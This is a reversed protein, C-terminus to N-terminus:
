YWVIENQDDLRSREIETNLYQVMSKAWVVVKSSSHNLLKSILEKQKELYPVQSGVSGYSGINAALENMFGDLEGFEDIMKLALHHWKTADGFVTVPMMYALRKAAKPSNDRAWGILKDVNAHDLVGVEGYEGNKSGLLYKLSIYIEDDLLATGIVSLFLDFDTLIVHNIIDKLYHDLSYIGYDKAVEVIQRLLVEILETEQNEKFLRDIVSKWSYHFNHSPRAKLFNNNLILTMLFPKLILWSEERRRVYQAGIDFSVAEANPYSSLTSLVDLVENFELGDFGRGNLLQYFQSPEIAGRDLLQFLKNIESIDPVQVSTIYVSYRSLENDQIISDTIAKRKSQELSSVYGALVVANQDDLPLEKIVKLMEYALEADNLLEGLRYGFVFGKRQEGSLLYPLISLIDEKENVIKEAFQKANDGVRDIYRGDLKYDFDLDWPPVSVYYSVKNRLSKPELLIQIREVLDAEENNIVEYKLASSLQNIAEEWYSDDFIVIKEIANKLLYALNERILSRTATAIAGKIVEREEENVNAVYVLRELLNAWYEAIQPWSPDFDKLPVSSGQKEPGIDRRFSDGKLGQIMALVALHRIRPDSDELHLDIAKIREKLDAQTGPLVIHFLHLLQGTANNSINENEAAAFRFMLAVSRQFLEERFVLAELAWILNRRGPGVTEKLENIELTGFEIELATLTSEPNVPVVSRFLRSGLGTNLVEAKGFPSNPGWLDNVVIKAERLQDLESLRDVLPVALQLRELEPFLEKLEEPDAYKWWSMALKVALPTPKASLYAGRRELVRNNEFYETAELFQNKSCSRDCIKNIIFEMQEKYFTKEDTNLIGAIQSNPRGFSSFISCAKLIQFRDDSGVQRGFALKKILEEGLLESFNVENYLLNKAFLVAMGPYGESYVAIQDIQERTLSEKFQDNLIKKVVDHSNRNSLFVYEEVMTKSKDSEESVNYDVTILKLLSGQRKIEDKLLKHHYYDCNDVVLIGAMSKGYTRVFNVISDAQNVIDFYVAESLAGSAKIAEYVLRTKGLGSHGIIRLVGRDQSITIQIQKIHQDLESNSHFKIEYIESYDKLESLTKLGQIREIGNESQVFIVSQIFDNTWNAIDNAELIRVQDPTYRTSHLDNYDNLARHAEQLRRQKLSSNYGHGIFFIYQGGEDLVEKIKDKLELQRPIAPKGLVGESAVVEGQPPSDIRFFESYISSPSLDTAKNQFISFNNCIYQSEGTNACKVRGDDGGDAVNIKLPVIVDTIGTFKYKRAENNLLSLLLKSLALDGLLEIEQYTIQNIKM